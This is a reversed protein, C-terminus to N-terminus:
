DGLFCNVIRGELVRPGIPSSAGQLPEPTIFVEDFNILSGDEGRGLWVDEFFRVLDIRLRSQTEVDVVWARYIRFSSGFTEPRPLNLGIVTVRAPEVNIYALGISSPANNTNRLIVTCPRMVMPICISQGIFVLDPNTIQPNAGILEELTVGFVSAIRYLTDGAKIIYLQGSCASPPPPVQRNKNFNTM